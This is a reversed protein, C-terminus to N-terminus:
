RAPRYLVNVDVRRRLRQIWDAVLAERRGSAARVRAEDGAEELSLTRGDRTFESRHQEYYRAVEEDTPQAPATFLQDEYAAIRLGDGVIDRLRVDTMGTQELASRYAEDSAFGRRVEALRREVVAEEAPLASYRNVEGLMLERDILASLAAAIPDSARGVDVLGFTMAARADSLTIAEGGVTALVRDVVQASGTGALCLGFLTLAFTRRCAKTM